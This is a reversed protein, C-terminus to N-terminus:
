SEGSQHPSSQTSGFARGDAMERAEASRGDRQAQVSTMSMPTVFGNRLFAKTNLLRNFPFRTQMM